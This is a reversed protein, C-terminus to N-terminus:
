SAIEIIKDQQELITKIQLPLKNIAAILKKSETPTIKNKQQAIHIALMLLVVVQSTFAKTSAVGIEIGAYTYIGGDSERAITSGVVNTIGLVKIGRAQAERLAALTDATEGSQSISIVIDGKKLIPKRYRFESAYEVEVPIRAFEEILYEGILAAHWSTGCAIFIIREIARLEDESLRLGDLRAHGIEPLIRGRFSNRITEPQEFIEKLMYYDYGKKEIAEIDWDITEVSKSVSTKSLDYIKFTNGKIEVVEDDELYIVNKTHEVIASANSALVIGSECIGLILPSGKRAAVLIDPEKISVVAIGFTGQIHKLAFLVSDILSNTKHYSEILHVVVETDTESKFVHGEKQLIDRLISHNEIIGNHVLALKGECDTHPHANIETPAGHTAWRIHGIGVKYHDLKPRDLSSYLENLKGTRKCIYLDDGVLAIGSSDYGGMYEMQKLGNIIIDAAFGSGTYGIIGSM